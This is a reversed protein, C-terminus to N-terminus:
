GIILQQPMAIIGLIVQSIVDVPMLQVIIGVPTILMSMSLIHQSVIFRMIAQPMGMVMVHPSVGQMTQM